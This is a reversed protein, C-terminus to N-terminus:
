KMLIVVSIVLMYQNTKKNWWKGSNRDPTQYLSWIQNTLQSSKPTWRLIVNFTSWKYIRIHTPTTYLIAETQKHNRRLLNKRLADVGIGIFYLFKAKRHSSFILIKNHNASRWMHLQLGIIKAGGNKEISIIKTSLKKVSLAIIRWGSGKIQKYYEKKELNFVLRNM